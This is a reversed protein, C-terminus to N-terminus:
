LLERSWAFVLIQGKRLGVLGLDLIQVIGQVPLQYVKM